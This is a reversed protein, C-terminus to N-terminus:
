FTLTVRGYYYGGNIGFPSFTMPANWVNGGDAPKGISLVPVTPPREDLLNNAGVDLKIADTIMYSVNLDTIATVGIKLETTVNSTSVLESSKGYVSERLNVTWKGLKWFANGVLKDKPTATTLGSLASASLLSTQTIVTPAASFDQAPLAALKTITTENHNYGLSWDVRGYEAFDSAYTVTAEIGRTRTDVANTFVSIGAYSIGSDLTNGHATIANLIAQSIVNNKGGAVASGYLFGTTQIRDRIEIQYADVTIQLGDAPHAVFGVSYNTSKEPKLPAFGAIVAAASNAPLQVTASSPSVNTGSYFEEQLTPARFGNSITGRIAIMPSFDYRATLKGVTAEGFDSYHSYRGALDVHLGTIPDVALDVYGAYDTRTHKGANSPDYGTFSQAGAGFYSSPEGAVIEFEDRRTEAGFAVNLPSAAGVDFTKVIDLNGTWESSRFTGDYFDRQPIIPTASAAALVPFLQANASNKTYIDDKDQGYTSSLDWSWGELDGKIGVTFGFDDEALSETPNFGAPLPYYKVGTSTTGSIKTPVRYNEFSDANRHSYSGTSYLQIGGGLDYGGNYFFNYINYHADGVIRNVNPSGPQLVVGAADIPNDTPLLKGNIDFLRRDAGGQQSFDHYREELTFNLFGKDGLTMGNNFSWAGTKGGNEFYQGGTATVSGGHDASKLIINVVGAVADSGYQAAAGDQLVEIHDIAGVPILGLDATASGSYPSGGLVSLNATSHRRKGNILVLTDNPSLGRLAASLTLNAADGGFAQANFSPLNQAIAQILDPQGVQKLATAGLVQIPAPSDAAKM